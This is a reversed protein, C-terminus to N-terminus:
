VKQQGTKHELCQTSACISYWTVWGAWWVWWSFYLSNNVLFKPAWRERGVTSLKVSCKRRVASLKVSWKRRVAGLKIWFPGSLASDVFFIDAFECFNSLQEKMHSLFLYPIHFSIHFLYDLSCDPSVFLCVCYPPDIKPILFLWTAQPEGLHM